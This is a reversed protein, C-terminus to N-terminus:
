TPARGTTVLTDPFGARIVRFGSPGVQMLQLDSWKGTVLTDQGAAPQGVYGTNFSVELPGHLTPATIAYSKGDLGGAFLPNEEPHWPADPGFKEFFPAQILLTPERPYVEGTGKGAFDSYMVRVEKWNRRFEGYLHNELFSEFAKSFLYGALGSSILIHFIEVFVDVFNRDETATALKIVVFPVQVLLIVLLGLAIRYKWIWNKMTPSERWPLRARLM